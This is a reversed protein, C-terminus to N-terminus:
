GGWRRGADHMCTLEETIARLVLQGAGAMERLASAQGLEDYGFVCETLRV